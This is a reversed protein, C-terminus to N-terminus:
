APSCSLNPHNDPTISIFVPFITNPYHIKILNLKIVVNPNRKRIVEKGKPIGDQNGKPIIGEQIKKTEEQNIVMM